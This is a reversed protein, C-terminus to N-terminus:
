SCAKRAPAREKGGEGFEKCIVSIPYLTSM